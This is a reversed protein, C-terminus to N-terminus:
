YPSPHIVTGFRLTPCSVQSEIAAAVIEATRKEELRREDNKSSTDQTGYFRRYLSLVLPSLLQKLAYAGAFLASAGILAQLLSLFVTALSHQQHGASWIWVRMM